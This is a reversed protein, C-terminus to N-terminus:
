TKDPRTRHHLAHSDCHERCVVGSQSAYKANFYHRGHTRGAKQCVFDSTESKLDWVYYLFQLKRYTHM